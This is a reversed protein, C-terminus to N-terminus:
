PPCQIILWSLPIAQDYFAIESQSVPQVKMISEWVGSLEDSQQDIPEGRRMQPFEHNLVDHAYDLLAQQVQAQDAPPFAETARLIDAVASAESDTAKEADGFQEWVVVFVFAVLVAYLVGALSFFVEGSVDHAQELRTKSVLRRFAFLAIVSGVVFVIVTVTGVIIPSIQLLWIM